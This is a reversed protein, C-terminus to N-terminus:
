SAHLVTIKRRVHEGIQCYDRYTDRKLYYQCSTYHESLAGNTSGHRELLSKTNKKRKTLQLLKVRDVWQEKCLFFAFYYALTVEYGPEGTHIINTPLAWVRHLLIQVPDPFLEMHLVCSAM